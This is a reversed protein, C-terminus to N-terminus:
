LYKRFQPLSSILDYMGQILVLEKALAMKMADMQSSDFSLDEKRPWKNTDLVPFETQGRKIAIDSLICSFDYIAKGQIALYYPPHIDTECSIIYRQLPMSEKMDHLGELVHRYAEFYATTEAMLYTTKPKIEIEENHEFLVQIQGNAIDKLNRDTVTGFVVTDFDDASLCVLSGYLLRKSANWNMRRFPEIDFQLVYCIGSLTCVPMMIQVSHYLRIERVNKVALRSTLGTKYDNIGERLPRIYDERLLRFQIDLYQDLDKYKGAEINPHLFPRDKMLDEYSPLISLERFSEPPESDVDDKRQYKSPNTMRQRLSEREEKISEKKMELEQIETTMKENHFDHENQVQQLSLIVPYCKGLSSPLVDMHYKIVSIVSLCVSELKDKDKIFHRHTESGTLIQSLFDNVKQLLSDEITILLERLHYTCTQTKVTISLIELIRHLWDPKLSKELCEVLGSRSNGVTLVLNDPDETMKSWEELKKYGLTFERPQSEHVGSRETFKRSKAINKEHNGKPAIKGKSSNKEDYQIPM